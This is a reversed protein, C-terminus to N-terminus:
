DGSPETGAQQRARHLELAAATAAQRLGALHQREEETWATARAVAMDPDPGPGSWEPSDPMEARYKATIEASYAHAADQAAKFAVQLEEIQSV